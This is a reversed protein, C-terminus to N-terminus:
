LNGLDSKMAQLTGDRDIGELKTIRRDIEQIQGELESAQGLLKAFDGRSIGVADMSRLVDQRSRDAIFSLEIEDACDSPPPHFLSEWAQKIRASIASSQGQELDPSIVPTPLGFFSKEFEALRPAFSKKEVDWDLLKQEAVLMTRFRATVAPAVLLIPLTTGLLAELSRRIEDLKNRYQQREEVLDKVTSVDSVTGGSAAIREVLANFKAQAGNREEKLLHEKESAAQQRSEIEALQRGLKDVAEADVSGSDGRRNNEYQRLREALQRLLVVGLLGELGQKVTEIRAQDAM